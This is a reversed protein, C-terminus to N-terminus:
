PLTFLKIRELNFGLDLILPTKKKTKKLFSVVVVCNGWIEWNPIEIFSYINVQTKNLFGLANRNSLLFRTKTLDWSLSNSHFTSLFSFVRFIVCPSWWFLMPLFWAPIQFFSLNDDPNMSKLFLINTINLTM